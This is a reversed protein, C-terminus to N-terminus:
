WSWSYPFDYKYLSLSSQDEEIMRTNDQDWFERMPGVGMLGEGNKLDLLKLDLYMKEDALAFRTHNGQSNLQLGKVPM